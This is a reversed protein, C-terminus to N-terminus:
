VCALLIYYKDALNCAPCMPFC